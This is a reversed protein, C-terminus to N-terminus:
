NKVVMLDKGSRYMEFYHTAQLATHTVLCGAPPKCDCAVDKCEDPDACCYTSFCKAECCKGQCAGKPGKGTDVNVMSQLNVQVNGTEDLLASKTLSIRQNSLGSKQITFEGKVTDQTTTYRTVELELADKDRKIAKAVVHMDGDHVLLMSGPAMVYRERTGDGKTLEVAFQQVLTHHCATSL